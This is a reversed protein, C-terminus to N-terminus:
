MGPRLASTRVGKVGDAAHVIGEAEFKTSIYHNGTKPADAPVDDGFVAGRRSRLLQLRLFNAPPVFIGASSTYVFSGVTGLEQSAKLVNRTGEVNVRYSLPKLYGLREFNRIVAVTHIVAEATRGTSGFPRSIAEAISQYDTVDAQIFEARSLSDVASADSGVSVKPEVVDIIRVLTEGRALLSRVIYQGVLGSGGVVIYAKGTAPGHAKMADAIDQPTPITVKALDDDSLATATFAHVSPDPTTLRRNLALLYAAASAAVGLIIWTSM